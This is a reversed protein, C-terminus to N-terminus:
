GRGVPLWCSECNCYGFIGGSMLMQAMPFVDSQVVSPCTSHHNQDHSYGQYRAWTLHGMLIQLICLHICSYVLLYLTLMHTDKSQTVRGELNRMRETKYKYGASGLSGGSGIEQVTIGDPKGHVM